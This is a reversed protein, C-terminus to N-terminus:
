RDDKEQIHVRKFWIGEYPSLKGAEYLCGLEKRNLQVLDSYASPGAHITRVAEWSLGENRSLKLILNRRYLSDSPNLFYLTVSGDKLTINLLAAQCIPEILQPDDRIDSWSQGGNESISVKRNKHNRNYNRMNLILRGDPLEAM